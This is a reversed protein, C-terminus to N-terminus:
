LIRNCGKANNEGHFGRCHEEPLGGCIIFLLHVRNAYSISDKEHLIPKFHLFSLFLALGQPM